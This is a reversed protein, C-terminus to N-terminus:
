QTQLLRKEIRWLKQKLQRNELKLKTNTDKQKNYLDKQKFYAERNKTNTERMRVLERTTANLSYGEYQGYLSNITSNFNIIKDIIDFKAQERKDTELFDRYTIVCNYVAAHDRGTLEGIQRYGMRPFMWYVIYDFMRRASIVEAKRTRLCIDVNFENNIIEKIEEPTM